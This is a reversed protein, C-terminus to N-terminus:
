LHIFTTIRSETRNCIPFKILAEILFHMRLNLPFDLGAAVKGSQKLQRINYIYWCYTYYVSFICCILSLLRVGNLCKFLWSKTYEDADLDERLSWRLESDSVCLFIVLINLFCIKSASRILMKRLNNQKTM